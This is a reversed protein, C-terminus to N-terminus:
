GSKRPQAPAGKEAEAQKLWKKGAANSVPKKIFKALDKFGRQADRKWDKGESNDVIIFNNKFVSQYKGLNDQVKQWMKTVNEAGITRDRDKDRQIATELNTNVFVMATDYGLKDFEKKPGIIRDYDQGTGDIIVGLRGRIYIEKQKNTLELARLRIEQGKDSWIDEPSTSMGAKKLLNEYATDINNLRLGMALLGLHGKSNSTAIFSKGSGPGGALFVAKFIGPDNLGESLYNKFSKM